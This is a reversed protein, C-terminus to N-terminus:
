AILGASLHTVESGRGLAQLSTRLIGDADLGAQLTCRRPATMTRSCM